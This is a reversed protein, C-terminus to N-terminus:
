HSDAYGEDLCQIAAVCVAACQILEERYESTDMNDTDFLEELAAKAVEGSEEQLIASWIIPQHSQVGWKEDQREREKRIEDFINKM